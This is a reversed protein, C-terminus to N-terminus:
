VQRIRKRRRAMLRERQEDASNGAAEEAGEAQMSRWDPHPRVEMTTVHPGYRTLAMEVKKTVPERMEEARAELQAERCMMIEQMHEVARRLLRYAMVETHEKLGWWLYKVVVMHRLGKRHGERGLERQVERRGKEGKTLLPIDQDRVILRDIERYQECQMFHECTELEKGCHCRMYGEPLEPGRHKYWRIIVELVPVQGTLAQLRRIQVRKPPMEPRLHNPFHIGQGVRDELHRSLTVVEPEGRLHALMHVPQPYVRLEWRGRDEQLVWKAREEDGARPPIHVLHLHDKREPVRWEPEKDMDIEHNGVGARQSEQKVLHIVLPVKRTEKKKSQSRFNLSYELSHKPFHADGAYSATSGRLAPCMAFVWLECAYLLPSESATPLVAM